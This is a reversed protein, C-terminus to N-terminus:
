QGALVKNSLARLKDLPMSYLEDESPENNTVVTTRRHTSLGSAKKTAPPPTVQTKEEIRTGSKDKDQGQGAEEGKVQLLGSENLDQYAKNMGELSFDNHLECWKNMKAGNKDNDLYDPHAAVFADAVSKKKSNEKQAKVYAATEKVEELDVGHAKLIKTIVETPKGSVLEAALLAEQEKTLVPEPTKPATTKLEKIRKSANKQAAILKNSLDELAEERTAGEGKFVQSGAGDELDFSREATFKKAPPDDTPPDQPPDTVPPDDAPPDSPTTSQEKAQVEALKRLDELSMAELEAETKQM